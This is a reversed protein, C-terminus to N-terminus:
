LGGSVNMLAGTVYSAEPSVLWLVLNAVEDPLGGRKMPLGPALRQVRDPEGGNAHIDTEILGPRVCNVRISEGALEKALGITMTDIAGKSAAYDVYETPSGLYSAASGINVIVGGGGGNSTSMARIAERACLFSGIVNVALVRAIRDYTYSEVRGQPAVVGANNILATPTGLQETVQEFLSVVHQEISVDGRVLVSRVGQRTCQDSVKTASERDQLYNIGVAWGNAAAQRAVSAGIGRSAGTVIMVKDAQKIYGMSEVRLKAAM